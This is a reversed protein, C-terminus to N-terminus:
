IRVHEWFDEGRSPSCRRLFLVILGLVSAVASRSTGVVILVILLRVMIAVASMMIAYFVLRDIPSMAIFYAISLKGM